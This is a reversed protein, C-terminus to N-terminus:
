TLGPHQTMRHTLGNQCAAPSRPHLNLRMIDETRDFRDTGAARSMSSEIILAKSRTNRPGHLIELVHHSQLLHSLIAHATTNPLSKSPPCRLLRLSISSSTLHIIMYCIAQSLEHLFGRNTKSDHVPKPAGCSQRAQADHPTPYVKAAPLSRNTAGQAHYGECKSDSGNYAPHLFVVQPVEDDRFRGVPLDEGQVQRYVHLLQPGSQCRPLVIRRLYFRSKTAERSLLHGPEHWHIGRGNLERTRWSSIEASSPVKWSRQEHCM